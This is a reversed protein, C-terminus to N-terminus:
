RFAKAVLDALDAGQLDPLPGHPVEGPRTVGSFVLAFSAFLREALVGDTSLRDGVVVNVEGLRSKVLEVAAANPTGAVVPPVGTAYSLAAVLAGAGPLIGDAIPFTADDNTALFRAGRAIARTATTLHAFSLERDLGVVVVDIDRETDTCPHEVIMVGRDELAERIGAGGLVFAREGSVCLSAAADSSTLLEGPATRVGFGELKGLLEHRSVSSNNTFFAVRQDKSRLEAIAESAGPILKEGLWIVGDLDILWTPGANM